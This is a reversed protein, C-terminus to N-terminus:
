RLRVTFESPDTVEGILAACWVGREKLGSCLDGLRPEPVSILMGGSTQADALIGVMTEDTQGRDLRDGVYEPNSKSTRTFCGQQALELVGNMLPVAKVDIWITVGSAEALEHAHGILGFGTVDTAAHVGVEVMTEGTSRNLECMVHICEALDSAPIRDNKAATTLIGTGLPKTLLLKDGPKAGRNTIIRQPNITGTVALGYKIESDRVSHGGVITADAEQVKDAGGRLIETLIEMPLDKDPFAVINLATLPTGGMAYIDSLSNAAAIQGFTYPDDVLPPFFDVTQVLALEADLQYVGADDFTEMGVLLNPDDSKSLGRLVQALSGM